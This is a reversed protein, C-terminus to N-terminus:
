ATKRRNYPTNPHAPAITAAVRSLSLRAVRVPAPHANSRTRRSGRGDRFSAEQLQGPGPETRQESERGTREHLRSCGHSIRPRTRDSRAGEQPKRAGTKRSRVRTPRGSTPFPVTGSAASTQGDRNRNRATENAARNRWARNGPKCGPVRWRGQMGGRGPRACALGRLGEARRGRRVLTM